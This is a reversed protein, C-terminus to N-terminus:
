VEYYEPWEARDVLDMFITSLVRKGRPATASIIVALVEEISTKQVSTIPMTIACFKVKSLKSKFSEHLVAQRQKTRRRRCLYAMDVPRAM